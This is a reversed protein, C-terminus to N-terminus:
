SAKGNKLKKMSEDLWLMYWELFTTRGTQGFYKDPYFGGGNARDDVWINGYEDGNVVLNIFVGCGYNCIRLLGSAWKPDYYEAYFAEDSEPDALQDNHMNWPKTMAFPTSPDLLGSEQQHGPDIFLGHEFKELGGYHPGAGGNGALILFSRYEEPLTISFREEFAIVESEALPKNLLYKHKSANFLSCEPDAQRLEDLRKKIAEINM